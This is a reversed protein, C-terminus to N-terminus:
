GHPTRMAKMYGIHPWLLYVDPQPGNIPRRFAMHVHLWAILLRFDKCTSATNQKGRLTKVAVQRRTTHAVSAPSYTARM